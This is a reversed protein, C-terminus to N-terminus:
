QGIIWPKQADYKNQERLRILEPYHKSNARRWKEWKDYEDYKPPAKM